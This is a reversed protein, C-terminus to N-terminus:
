GSILRAFDEATIERFDKVVLHARGLEEATHTTTVGVVKMGAALASAIGPYSDEVAACTEPRRGLLEAAKLYLDPAPKGRPVMGVDVLADFCPGLGTGELAFDLNIRPAATAVAIGAGHTRLSELLAELGPAPRVHGAYLKRYLAEKEDALSAALGDPLPNGFLGELIIRNTRGFLRDKFSAEDFTLGHNRAFRKWAKFHYPCNDVIVGDMDFIVAFDMM